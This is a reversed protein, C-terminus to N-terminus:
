SRGVLERRSPERICSLWPQHLACLGSHKPPPSSSSSTLWGLSVAPPPCHPVSIPHLPFSPSPPALSSPPLSGGTNVPCTSHAPLSMVCLEDGWGWPRRAPNADSWVPASICARLTLLKGLTVCLTFIERQDTCGWSGPRWPSSLRCLRATQGEVENQKVTEM